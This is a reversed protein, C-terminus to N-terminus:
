KKRNLYNKNHNFYCMIKRLYNQICYIILTQLLIGSRCFLELLYKKILCIKTMSVPNM